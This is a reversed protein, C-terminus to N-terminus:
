SVFYRPVGVGRYKLHERVASGAALRGRYLEETRRVNAMQQM